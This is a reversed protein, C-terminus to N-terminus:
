DDILDDIFPEDFPDPDFESSEILSNIVEDPMDYMDELNM